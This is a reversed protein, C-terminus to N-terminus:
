HAFGAILLNSPVFGVKMDLCGIWWNTNVKQLVYVLDGRDFTLEDSEGSSYADTGIYVNEYSFDSELPGDPETILSIIAQM